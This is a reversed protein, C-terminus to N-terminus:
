RSTLVTCCDIQAPATGRVGSLSSVASGLSGLQHLPARLGRGLFGVVGRGKPGRSVM